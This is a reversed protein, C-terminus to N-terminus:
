HDCISPQWFWEWTRAPSYSHKRSGIGRGLAANFVDPHEQGGPCSIGNPREGSGLPAFGIRGTPEARLRPLRVSLAGTRRKGRAPAPGTSDSTGVVEAQDRRASSLDYWAEAQRLADSPRAAGGRGGAARAVGERRATVKAPSPVTGTPAGARHGLFGIRGPDFVNADGFEGFPDCHRFTSLRVSIRDHVSWGSSVPSRGGYRFPPKTKFDIM